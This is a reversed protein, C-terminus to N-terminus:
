AASQAGMPYNKALHEILALGDKGTTSQEKKLLSFDKPDTTALWYEFPTSEVSVVAKKEECILFAESYQGKVQSLSQIQMVERENLRLVEALRKFDAGPQKLIWKISANPMIASAAKSKTFDDINQSIAVASAFYKRFTRFVEGIFQSGAENELLRWCEDFILFKMEARDKQVERWVMDTITFLVAAQLDPNAELGKLDFCVVRKQMEINTPRDVFKGFPSNGCWLSLIKGIRKVEEIESKLLKERLDSLQPNKKEGYVEQISKEIEAKELKGIGKQDDEKTMIQVLTLLFKIKEDSVENEDLRDFPNMSVGSTMSLPIYQGDLLECTKQYSAGVDLIFCRPNQSLMQATMLNTLYSKGSGSGGSLIQNANTLSSSFPDFKFISGMRTRLLVSPKDFGSWLGFVPLLDALNSSKLRKSRETNRANPISSAAFIDFAAYTEMFGESGSLERIIQLVHSVQADLEEEANSRLVISLSSSFIKEGGKVVETLLEELDQLKAESELDSVGKKGAVMAFAMRRNLKLWEMEKNQDPVHVSLFLTSGFPLDTLASAMGAFTQEPLVKLTIVRHHTSGLRFGQVSKVMDSLLVRDRIDTEDFHGLGLPHSPNWSGFIKEVIESPQLRVTTFGSAILNREIEAQISKARTLSREFNAETEDRKKSINMDWLRIKPGSQEDSPIRVFVYNEQKPLAGVEDLDAYKQFRTEAVRRIIPIVKQAFGLHEELDKKGSKSISQVFQIDIHSPLSGLFTRLQNKIQNIKEDSECSIDQPSIRFGFGFSCDKFITIGEEFGWTDLKNVLALQSM